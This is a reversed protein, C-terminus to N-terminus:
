VYPRSNQIDNSQDEWVPAAQRYPQPASTTTPPAPIIPGGRTGFDVQISSVFSYLLTFIVFQYQYKQSYFRYLFFIAIKIMM